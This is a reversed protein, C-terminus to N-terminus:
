DKPRLVLLYFGAGVLPFVLIMAILLVKTGLDRYKSLVDSIAIVDLAIVAIKILGMLTM